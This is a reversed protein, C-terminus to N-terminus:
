DKQGSEGDATLDALLRRLAAERAQAKTDVRAAAKNADDIIPLWDDPQGETALSAQAQKLYRRAARLEDLLKEDDTGRRAMKWNEFL